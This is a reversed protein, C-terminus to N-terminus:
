NWKGDVQNENILFYQTGEIDYKEIYVPSFSVINEKKLKKSKGGSLVRGRDQHRVMVEHKGKEDFFYQDKIKEDVPKCIVRDGVAVWKGKVKKAFIQEPYSKWYDKGEFSFLNNFRYNDTKGLPFQSLWREVTEEDGQVGDILQKSKNQLVGCWIAGKFGSRKPLAYVRIMEGKGNVFEKVYDNEEVCPMFREGDSSFDFDAVVQYSFCVEDGVKLQSLVDKDKGTKQLPLAAIVGTVSAQWEKKYDPAIYLKLGSDTVIEDQLAQKITILIHSVPIPTAL